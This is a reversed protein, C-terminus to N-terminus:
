RLMALFQVLERFKKPSTEALGAFSPMPATPNRIAAAIAAPRLVKGIHTLPPGPGNNGSGGIQHCGECGSEGAVTEGALFTARESVSLGSPPKLALVDPSGTIKVACGTAAASCPLIRGRTHEILYVLAANVSDGSQGFGLAGGALPVVYTVGGGHERLVAVYAGNTLKQPSGPEAEVAAIRSAKGGTLCRGFVRSPLGDGTVNLTGPYGGARALQLSVPVRMRLSCRGQLAVTVYRTAGVPNGGAIFVTVAAAVVIALLL